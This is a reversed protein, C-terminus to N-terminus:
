GSTIAIAMWRVTVHLGLPHIATRLVEVWPRGGSWDVLATQDVGPGFTTKVGAPVIQRMAFALPVQRGFGYAVPIALAAATRRAPVRSALSSLVIPAPAPPSTQAAGPSTPTLQFDARAPAITAAVWLLAVMLFYRM